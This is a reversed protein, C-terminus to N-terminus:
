ENAWIQSVSLNPDQHSKPQVINTNRAVDLLHEILKLNVWFVSIIKAEKPIFVVAHLVLQHFVAHTNM